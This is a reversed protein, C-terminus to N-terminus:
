GASTLKGARAAAPAKLCLGALPRALMTTALATLLLGAYAATGIMGAEVLMGLVVLEVMGKTQLLAGLAAADRWGLGGWRAPLAVGLLKGAVAVVLTGAFVVLWDTGDLSLEAHLGAGLFFFPMLVHIVLPGIQREVALRLRPPWVLGALLGGMVHHLGTLESLCASGAVLVLALVPLWEPEAAM